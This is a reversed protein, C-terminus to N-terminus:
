YKLGTILKKLKDRSWIFYNYGRCLYFKFEWFPTNRDISTRKIEFRDPFSECVSMGEIFAAEYGQKSVIGKVEDSYNGYPYCFLRTSKGTIESVKIGSERVERSIDADDLDSLFPHSCSHSGFSVGQGEMKKIDDKSLMKMRVVEYTDALFSKLRDNSFKLLFRMNKIAFESSRIKAIQEHSINDTDAENEIQLNPMIYKKSWEATGGIYDTTLFVVFPFNMSTLLPFANTFNDKFGDDFTLLVHKEPLVSNNRVIDLFEEANMVKYGNKKLYEMQKMFIDLPLNLLVTGNDISHYALIIIGKVPFLWGIMYFLIKTIRSILGRHQNFLKNKM